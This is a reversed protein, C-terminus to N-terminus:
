GGLYIYGETDDRVGWVLRHVCRSALTQRCDVALSLCTHPKKTKKKKGQGAHFHFVLFYDWCAPPYWHMEQDKSDGGGGGWVRKSEDLGTLDRLGWFVIRNRDKDGQRDRKALYLDCGSMCFCDLETGTWRRSLHSCFTLLKWDVWMWVGETSHALPWLTSSLAVHHLRDDQQATYSPTLGEAWTLVVCVPTCVLTFTIFQDM